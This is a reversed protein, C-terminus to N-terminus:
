SRAAPPNRRFVLFIFRGGGRHRRELSFWPACQGAFDAATRRLIEGQAGPLAYRGTRWLRPLNRWWWGYRADGIFFPNLVSAIISAQPGTLAHLRAFLAPLHAILNLPAFNATVVDLPGEPPAPAGALFDAYSGTELAIAGSAILDRCHRALFECMRPDNDYARVRFGREAFYRADLGAGAGFDLLAAGPPALRLVLERFAARARRDSERATIAAAYEAGAHSASM